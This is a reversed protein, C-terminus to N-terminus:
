KSSGSATQEEILVAWLEGWNAAFPSGPTRQRNGDPQWTGAIMSAMLDALRNSSGPDFFSVLDFEGVTEHAYPLDAVLMPLEHQKAETIPLGWTELRSPFLLVSAEKYNALMQKRDQRGLFYLNPLHGYRKKLWRAYRNESGAITFRVEFNRIGRAQLLSVADGIIELNKFVRALAPYLFVHHANSKLTGRTPTLDPSPHAVVMPLQDFRRLFEQRMWEQQVIVCRNRRIFLRYLSAYFLNFLLLKPEQIIERSRVRYFPASNHCYVAQYRAHVRPTIDHLSFWLEPKWEQSLEKFGFWEWRLRRWWSAKADPIAVTRVRPLSILGEDHVLAIIEWEPPLVEVAAALSEHLVTLPGGETFNVASVVVTKRSM